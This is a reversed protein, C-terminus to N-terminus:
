QRIDRHKAHCAACSQTVKAMTATLKERDKAASQLLAHLEESVITARETFTTFSRPKEKLAPSRALERFRENLQLASHASDALLKNGQWQRKDAAQLEDCLADIEVMLEVLPPPTVRDPLDPSVADLERRSPPRFSAVDAFLQKYDPSTGAQKLWRVAQEGTWGQTAMCGVAAAAPGRHKGHHCHILVPGSATEIARAIKLAEEKPVGNYGMPLHIYRIGHKKAEEVDPTAGDVSIIVKIGRGALAAFDQEGPQGSSYVQPSLQYFSELGGDIHKPYAEIRQKEEAFAPNGLVCSLVAAAMCLRMLLSQNIM